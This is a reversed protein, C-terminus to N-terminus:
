PLLGEPPSEGPHTNLYIVNGDPDILEAAASGDSEHEAPRSLRLGRAELTETLAFVEAGRFNLLNREIHGEYLALRLNGQQLVAWGEDPAGGVLELGLREYFDVSAALEAVNLCLEFWGLDPTPTDM